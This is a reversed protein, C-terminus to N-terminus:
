PVAIETIDVEKRQKEYRLVNPGKAQTQAGTRIERDWYLMFHHGLTETTQHKYNPVDSAFLEM